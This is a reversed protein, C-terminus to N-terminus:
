DAVNQVIARIAKATTASIPMIAALMRNRELRTSVGMPLGRFGHAAHRLAVEVRGRAKGRAGVLDAVHARRDLDEAGRRLGLDLVLRALAGHDLGQRAAKAFQRFAVEGVPDCRRKGLFVLGQAGAVIRGRELL